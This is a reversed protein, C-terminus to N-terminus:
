VIHDLRRRLTSTSIPSYYLHDKTLIISKIEETDVIELKGNQRAHDVYESTLKSSQEISIDFIAILEDSRIM